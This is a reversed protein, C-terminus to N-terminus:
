AVSVALYTTFRQASKLKRSKERLAPSLAAGYPLGASGTVRRDLAHLPLLPLLTRFTTYASCTFRNSRSAFFQHNLPHADSTPSTQSRSASLCPPRVFRLRVCNRRHPRALPLEDQSALRHGLQAQTPAASTPRSTAPSLQSHSLTLTRPQIITRVPPPGSKPNPPRPRCSPTAGPQRELGDLQTWSATTSHKRTLIDGARCVM